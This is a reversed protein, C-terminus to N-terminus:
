TKRRKTSHSAKLRKVFIKGADVGSRNFIKVDSNESQPEYLNLFALTHPSFFKKQLHPYRVTWKESPANKRLPVFKGDDISRVRSLMVYLHEAKYDIRSGMSKEPLWYYAGNLTKGQVYWVTVASAPYYPFECMHMKREDKNHGGYKAANDAHKFQDSEKQVDLPFPVVIEDNKLTDSSRWEFDSDLNLEKRTFKLAVFDPTDIELEFTCRHGNEDRANMAQIIRRKM